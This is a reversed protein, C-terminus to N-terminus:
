QLLEMKLLDGDVDYDLIISDNVPDSYAYRDPTYDKFFICTNGSEDVSVFVPEMTVIVLSIYEICYLSNVDRHKDM